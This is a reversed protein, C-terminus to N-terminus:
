QVIQTIIAGNEARPASLTIVGAGDRAIDYGTSNRGPGGVPDNPLGLIFGRSSLDSLDVLRVARCVSSISSCIATPSSPIILRPNAPKAASYAAVASALSKLEKRRLDNRAGPSTVAAQVQGPQNSLVLKGGFFVAGALVIVACTAAVPKNLKRRSRRGSSKMVENDLMLM